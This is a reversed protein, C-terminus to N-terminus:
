GKKKGKNPKEAEAAARARAEKRREARRQNALTKKYEREEEIAAYAIGICVKVADLAEENVVKIVTGGEQRAYVKNEKIYSKMDPNPVVLECVVVGSRIRIKVLRSQGVKYEEYNTTKFRKNGEHSSAYNVIEDYFQRYEDSLEAYKEDITLKKAAFSVGGEEETLVKVPTGDVAQSDSGGSRVAQFNQRNETAAVEYYGTVPQAAGLESRERRSAKAIDRLVVATAILAFAAIAAIYSITVITIINM